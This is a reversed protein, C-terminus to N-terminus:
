ITFRVAITETAVGAGNDESFFTFEAICWAGDVQSGINVAVVAGEGPALAPDGPPRGSWGGLFPQNGRVDAIEENTTVFRVSVRMSELPVSGTNEVAFTAWADDQYDHYTVDASAQAGVVVVVVSATNNNEGAGEDVVNHLDVMAEATWEGPMYRIAEGGYLFTLSQGPGLSILGPSERYPVSASVAPQIGWHFNGSPADGQNQLTVEFAVVGDQVAPDPSYTFSTIVLDPQGQGGGDGGVNVDEWAFNNTEDPEDFADWSDAWAQGTYPGAQQYTYHMESVVDDGPGLSAIADSHIPEEGTGPDWGWHFEEALTGGRNFITVGVVIQEGAAPTLNSLTLNTLELDVPEGPVPTPGEAEPTPGEPETTPQVPAAPEDPLPQTIESAAAVAQVTIVAPESNQGDSDIARVGINFVGVESATWHQVAAFARGTGPATTTEIVQGGSWLEVRAIARDDQSVSHIPVERGVLVQRGTPPFTIEVTPAAGQGLQCALMGGMMLSVVLLM